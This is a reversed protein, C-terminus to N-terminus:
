DQYSQLVFAAVLLILGTFLIVLEGTQGINLLSRIGLGTFLILIGLLGIAEHFKM